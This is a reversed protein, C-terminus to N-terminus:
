KKNLYYELIYKDRLVIFKSHYLNEYKSSKLNNLSNKILELGEELIVWVLKTGEYQEKKTLNQKNTNEVVEGVFLYSIQKFNDLSKHEEITGLKDTIKVLCGTEELIERIFGEEPTEGKEVGGGPLKFENKLTKNIIAIKGDERLVIGRAGIRITPNDFSIEKLGIDEDKIIKICKM